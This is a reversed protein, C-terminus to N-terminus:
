GGTGYCRPLNVPRLERALEADSLLGLWRSVRRRNASLVAFAQRALPLLAPRSLRKAWHRYHRLAFLCMLWAHDGFYVAGDDSVVVLEDNAFHGALAPYLQAARDAPVLRLAIRKPQKWLWEGIRTCLGCKPDYAITLCRM